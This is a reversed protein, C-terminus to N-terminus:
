RSKKVILGVDMINPTAVLPMVNQIEFVYIGQVPFTIKDSVNYFVDWLDGAGEGNFTGDTNRVFINHENHRQEGSPYTTTIRVRINAYVYYSTHRIVLRINYPVSIDQIDVEFKIVNDKKWTYGDLKNYKEFIKNKSCGAM